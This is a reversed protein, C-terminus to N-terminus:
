VKEDPAEADVLALVARQDSALCRAAHDAGDPVEKEPADPLPCWAPIAKDAPIRRNSRTCIWVSDGFRSYLCRDCNKVNITLVKMRECRKRRMKPM